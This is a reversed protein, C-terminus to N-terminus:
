LFSIGIGETHEKLLLQLPDLEQHNRSIVNSFFSSTHFHHFIINHFVLISNSVMKPLVAKFIPIYIGKGRYSPNPHDRPCEADIVVMDFIRSSSQCFTIADDVVVKATENFGFTDLNKQAIASVDADVDVLWAQGGATQLKPLVWHAWYGYYSGLFAVNQPRVIDCLAYLLRAEEPAIYTSREGHWFYNQIKQEYTSYGEEDDFYSLM